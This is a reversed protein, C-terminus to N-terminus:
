YLDAYDCAELHIEGNTNPMVDGVLNFDKEMWALALFTSTSRSVILFNEQDRTLQCGNAFATRKVEDATYASVKDKDSFNEVGSEESVKLKAKITQSKSRNYRTGYM